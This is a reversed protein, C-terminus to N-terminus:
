QNFRCRGVLLAGNTSYSPKVDGGERSHKPSPIQRPRLAAILAAAAADDLGPNESIDVIALSPNFTWMGGRRTNQKPALLSDAIAIAGASGVRNGSLNLARLNSPFCWEGDDTAVPQLAEALAKAGTSGVGCSSLDLVTLSTNFMMAGTPSFRPKLAEAVASCGADGIRPNESLTLGRLSNNFAWLGDPTQRPTLVGVAIADCGADGVDCGRGDIESVSSAFVCLESASTDEEDVGGRGNSQRQPWLALALAEAVLDGRRLGGGGKVMHGRAVYVCHEWMNPGNRLKLGFSVLGAPSVHLELADSCVQRLFELRPAGSQTPTMEVDASSQSAAGTMEALYQRLSHFRNGDKSNECEVIDKLAGEDWADLPVVSEAVSAGIQHLAGRLFEPPRLALAAATRQVRVLERPSLRVTTRGTLVAASSSGDGFFATADDVMRDDGGSVIVGADPALIDATLSQGQSPPTPQSQTSQSHLPQTSPTLSAVAGTGGNLADDTAAATTTPINCGDGGGGGGGGGAAGATADV